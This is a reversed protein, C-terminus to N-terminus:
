LIAPPRHLLVRSVTGFTIAAVSVGPVAVPPTTRRVSLQQVLNNYAAIGRSISFVGADSTKRGGCDYFTNNYAQVPTTGGGGAVICSYNSSGNAPDPGTGVHFIINNYAEVTGNDANVTSFNLGDCISNHIYNDHVHLDFQDSGGTSYFQMARCGGGSTSGTPNNNIENWGAWIHNSNTTFYVGHYYKDISSAQDGVSHVYNAYFRYQLTTDTHMCASQGSGKPCYFDNDIVRWGTFV